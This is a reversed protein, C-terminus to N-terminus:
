QNAIDIHPAKVVIKNNPLARSIRVRGYSYM